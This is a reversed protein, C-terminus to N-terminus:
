HKHKICHNHITAAFVSHAYVNTKTYDTSIWFQWKSHPLSDNYCLCIKIWVRPFLISKFSLWCYLFVHNSCKFLLAKIHFYEYIKFPAMGSIHSVSSTMDAQKHTHVRTHIHTHSIHMRIYNFHICVQNMFLICQQWTVDCKTM